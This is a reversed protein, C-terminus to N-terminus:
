KKMIRISFDLIWSKIQLKNNKLSTTLCEKGNIVNKIFLKDDDSNNITFNTKEM